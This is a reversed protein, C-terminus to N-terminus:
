GEDYDSQCMEIFFKRFGRQIANQADMASRYEQESQEQGKATIKEDLERIANYVNQYANSQEMNLDEIYDAIVPLVSVILLNKNLNKQALKIMQRAQKKQKQRENM